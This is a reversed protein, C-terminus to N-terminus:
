LTRITYDKIISTLVEPLQESLNEKIILKRDELHEKIIQYTKIYSEKFDAPGHIEALKKSLELLTAQSNVHFGNCTTPTAIDDVEAGLELLLKVMEPRCGEIAWQLPKINNEPRNISEPDNTIISRVKNSNEEVIQHLLNNRYKIPVYIHLWIDGEIKGRISDFKRAIKNVWSSNIFQMPFLILLLLIKKNIFM